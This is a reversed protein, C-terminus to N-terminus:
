KNAPVFKSKYKYKDQAKKMEELKRVRRITSDSMVNRANNGMDKKREKILSPYQIPTRIEHDGYENNNGSNSTISMRPYNKFNNVTMLPKDDYYDSIINYSEDRSAKLVVEKRKQKIARPFLPTEDGYAYDLVGGKQFNSTLIGREFTILEGAELVKGALEAASLGERPPNKGKYESVMVHVKEKPTGDLEVMASEISSKAPAFYQTKLRRHAAGQLTVDRLLYDLLVKKAGDKTLIYVTVIDQGSAHEQVHFIGVQSWRTDPDIVHSILSNITYRNALYIDGTRIKETM